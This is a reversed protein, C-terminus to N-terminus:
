RRFRGVDPLYLSSMMCQANQAVRCAVSVGVRRRGSAGRDTQGAPRDVRDTPRTPRNNATRSTPRTPGSPRDPPPQDTPRSTPQDTPRGIPRTPRDVPDTRRNPRDTPQDTPRDTAFPPRQLWRSIELWLDNLYRVSGSFLFTVSADVLQLCEGGKPGSLAVHHRIMRNRSM